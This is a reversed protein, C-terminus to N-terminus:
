FDCVHTHMVQMESAYHSSALPVQIKCKEDGDSSNWTDGFFGVQFHTVPVQMFEM